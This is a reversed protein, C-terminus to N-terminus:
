WWYSVHLPSLIYIILERYNESETESNNSPDELQKDLMYNDDATGSWNEDDSDEPYLPINIKELSVWVFITSTSRHEM